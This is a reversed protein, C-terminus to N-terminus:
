KKFLPSLFEDIDSIGSDGPKGEPLEKGTFKKKNSASGEAEFCFSKAKLTEDYRKKLEKESINGKEDLELEDLALSSIIVDMAEPIPKRAQKELFSVTQTTRREKDITGKLENLEKEKADLQKQLDGGSSDELQKKLAAVDEELKTVKSAPEYDKLFDIKNTAVKKVITRAISEEVGLAILEDKTIM